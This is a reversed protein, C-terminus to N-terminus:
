WGHSVAVLSVEKGAGQLHHNESRQLSLRQMPVGERLMNLSRGVIQELNFFARQIRRELPEQLGVQDLSLPAGRGGVTADPNVLQCRLSRLMQFM